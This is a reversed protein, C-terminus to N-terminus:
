AQLLMAAIDNAIRPKADDGMSLRALISDSNCPCGRLLEPVERLFEAELGDSWLQVEAISQKDESLAYDLRIIGWRFREEKSIDLVKEQGYIWEPSALKQEVEQWLERDAATLKLKKVPLDYVKSFADILSEKMDLVTIEPSIDRLNCVRSQVSKIGRAALKLPSVNLYKPLQEVDVDMMLTGHHYSSGGHHYYAHGSFKKGDVTLDNRGTKTARIGQMQVARLIVNTQKDVDFDESNMIMTFNLNGLDHYVAGGGSLRRALHGGDAELAQVHSEALANQNRGIVVTNKNQWLYLYCEDQQLRRLLVSELALNHYPDLSDGNIVFLKNIM